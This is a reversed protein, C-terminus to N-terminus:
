RYIRIEDFRKLLKITIFILNTQSVFFVIVLKNRYVITAMHHRRNKKPFALKESYLRAGSINMYDNLPEGLFNM